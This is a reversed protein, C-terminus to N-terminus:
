HSAWPRGTEVDPGKGPVGRKVVQKLMMWEVLAVLCDAMKVFHGGSKPLNGSRTLSSSVIPPHASILCSPLLHRAGEDAVVASVVATAVSVIVDGRMPALVVDGQVPALVNVLVRLM